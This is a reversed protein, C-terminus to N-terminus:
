LSRMIRRTKLQKDIAQIMAGAKDKDNQRWITQPLYEMRIGKLRDNLATRVDNLTGDSFKYLEDIRMLRNKKDKNQYIFGRPNSYATYAERRKLDLIYTNPKTLNLKKQYSKVGLQLDEVCLLSETNPTSMKLLNGGSLYELDNNIFHYFPIVHRGQSNPILTLPKRLDHPYQQGKLNNWNLQDTTAMYVEEFLYELEVLSKCSGKMLEFTPGTLLEPTLTDVKLRNMVFTIWPQVPGHANPLTKNCYRYLSPLKTPRQFWVPFQSTEKNPQDKTVGIKFEQYVPEELDKTTHMPEETQASEGATKQQSKSGEYSKGSTKSTKENPASISEPEKRARRRKSGQNSGASPEKDKDEDDRRRFLSGFNPVDQLSSRPVTPPTPVPTQQLDIILPTPPPPLTTISFLPPEAFTTVPINTLLTSETNLNFLSDIGTNPSLNLM